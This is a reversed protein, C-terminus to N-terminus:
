SVPRSAVPPAEVDLDTLKVLSLRLQLQLQLQLWIKVSCDRWREMLREMVRM